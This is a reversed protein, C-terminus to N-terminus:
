PSTPTPFMAAETATGAQIAVTVQSSAMGMLAAPRATITVAGVGTSMADPLNASVPVNLFGGIGSRDTVDNQLLQPSTGYFAVTSPDPPPDLSLAVGSAPNGLCDFVTAVVFVARAPDVSFGALGAISQAESQTEVTFGQTATATDMPQSLPYGWYCFTPVLGLSTSAVEMCGDLGFGSSDLPYTYMGNVIGSDTSKGMWWPTSQSALCPCASCTAADAKAIPNRQPDVLAISFKNIAHSGDASLADHSPKPWSVHGVCAWNGGYACADACTGSYDQQFAAFAAAGQPHATACAQRCDPTFCGLYCRWYADGDASSAWARADSCANATLCQGCSPAHVPDTVYGEVGGCTLGCETECKSAVCAAFSSVSSSGTAPYGTTCGSRCAPDGKCRGLCSEYGSCTATDAACASAETCCSASVCSACANTGLPLGCATLALDEPPNDQIGVLQRCAVFQSCFAPALAWACIASRRV